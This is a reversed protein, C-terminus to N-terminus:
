LNVLRVAHCLSVHSLHKRLLSIDFAGRGRGEVSLLM